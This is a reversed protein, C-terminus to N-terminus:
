QGRLAKASRLLKQAVHSHPNASALAKLEREADDLLGAQAYLVGLVLHSNTYTHKARDLEDLKAQELVKFRVQPAPPRPSTIEKGEKIATVEWSYLGGGELSDPMTWETGPLQQSTAVQKLHSDFVTVVYSTAGSLSSWRFTPHNTQIFTGVPTLLRFPNHEDASGMLIETKGILEAITPPPKVRQTTLATKALEEYRPPISKPGTLSGQKDLTVLGGGDFLAVVIGSSSNMIQAQSQQLQALQTQLDSISSVQDQLADNMQQLQSVRARLDAVQKRLSVTAIWFSLLLAMAAAVQLPIWHAPLRWFVAFRRWFPPPTMSANEKVPFSTLAAEFERLERM